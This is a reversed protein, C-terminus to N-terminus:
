CDVGARRPTPTAFTENVPSVAIRPTATFVVGDGLRYAPGSHARRVRPGIGPGAHSPRGEIAQGADVAVGEENEVSRLEAGVYGREARCHGSRCGLHLKGVAELGVVRGGHAAEGLGQAHHHLDGRGHLEPEGLPQADAAPPDDVVSRALGPLRDAVREEDPSEHVELRVPVDLPGKRGDPFVGLPM